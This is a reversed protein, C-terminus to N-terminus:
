GDGLRRFTGLGCADLADIRVSGDPRFRVGSPGEANEGVPDFLYVDGDWHQAPYATPGPGLLLSLGGDREVVELTGFYANHYTGVLEPRPRSPRPDAPPATWDHEPAPHLGAQMQKARLTVWDRQVRGTTVLDVFADALAEPVGLPEGNTLIVIGLEEQPIMVVCTAAGLAFAGSHSLRVRGLDDTGVNWGLGYFSSRARPDAPRHSIVQPVHTQALAAADVLRKGDLTGEGLQLRLWRAMDRASSAVGGAPSQADPQRVFRPSWRGDRRVHGAARNPFAQFGAFSSTTSRLGLPEYLRERSLEEWPRGAAKAAAVAAATVGFNTYAYSDRFAGLPLLRLRALIGDRGYGLDELDDGAHDPLGSRHAYLDALTVPRGDGLAFGPDHAAVPDDWKVVGDGVLGAVVTAGVAKSLSALQFVTDADVSAAEGVKRVGFGELLVVEDRYVVALSIGPVGTAAMTDRVLRGLVPLAAQVRAPTVANAPLGPPEQSLDSLPSDARTTAPLLLLALLLMWRLM